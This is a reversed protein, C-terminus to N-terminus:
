NGHPLTLSDDCKCGNRLWEFAFKADALLASSSLAFDPPAKTDAAQSVYGAETQPVFPPFFLFLLFMWACVRWRAGGLLDSVVASGGGGAM